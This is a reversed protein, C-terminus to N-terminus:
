NAGNVCIYFFPFLHQGLIAVHTKLSKLALDLCRVRSREIGKGPATEVASCNGDGLTHHVLHGKGWDSWEVAMFEKYLVLNQCLFVMFTSSVVLLCLCFNECCVQGQRGRLSCSGIHNLFVVESLM